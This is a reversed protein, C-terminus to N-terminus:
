PGSDIDVGTADGDSPTDTPAAPAEDTAEATETASTEATTTETATAEETPPPEIGLARLMENVAETPRANNQLVANYPADGVALLQDVIPANVLLVAPRTEEVFVALPLDPPLTLGINTPIQNALELFITQSEVSTLYNAVEIALQLQTDTLRASFLLGTARLLPGGDGQPGAPLRAIGVTDIGLAQQLPQLAGAGAVYYASGGNVFDDLLLARDAYFSMSTEAQAAQMWSLWGAFAGSGFGLEGTPTLLTGGYAPIGWFSNVFSADLHIPIGDAAQQRLEDLTRAPESILTRNYYLADLDITAPLGYLGGRYRMADVGVPRYRQLTEADIVSTLDRLAQQSVLDPIWEHPVMLLDLRGNSSLGASLRATVEEKTVPSANVIITPCDRRLQALVRTLIEERKPTIAYGLYLTGVGMCEYQPTAVETFGNAENIATTVAFSAEAPEVIGELVRTYADGGVQLVATMEPINLLPVAARAQSAFEAVIPNLRPNVRVRTNVPILRASRMMSSQQEANTVFTALETAIARQNDSSISSFLFAQVELFPAAAGNPGAPLTSVGVTSAGMEETLTSLEGAYGVYYAIGGDMFRNRLADRNSDLIMGPTDRADKLWALWNAFGGRDLIVRQEEDFLRGGFAQVGWFADIFNTNIAVVRENAAEAQLGDLTNVPEEILRTNYYLVLTDMTMPLGYLQGQYRLSDLAAPTVRQLTAEDLLPDVPSILEAAALASIDTSPAILLDPGLGADAAVQFQTLMTGIDDFQQLKVRAGFHVEQFRALVENFAAAESNTWTHWILIRGELETDPESSTCATLLLTSFLLFALFPLANRRKWHIMRWVNM